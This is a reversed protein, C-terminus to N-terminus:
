LEIGFDRQKRRSNDKYMEPNFEVLKLTNFTELITYDVVTEYFSMLLLDEKNTDEASEKIAQKVNEIEMEKFLTLKIDIATSYCDEEKKIEIDSMTKEEEIVKAVKEKIILAINDIDEYLRDHKEIDFTKSCELCNEILTTVAGCKTLDIDEQLGYFLGTVKETIAEKNDEILVKDINLARIVTETLLDVFLKEASENLCEMEENLAKLALDEKSTYRDKVAVNVEEMLVKENTKYAEQMTEFEQFTSELFSSIGERIRANKERKYKSNKMLLSQDLDNFM